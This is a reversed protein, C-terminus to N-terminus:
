FAGMKIEIAEGTDTTIRFLKNKFKDDDRMSYWACYLAKERDFSKLNFIEIHGDVMKIKIM